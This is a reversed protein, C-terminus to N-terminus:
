RRLQALTQFLEREQETLDQPLVIQVRAYLDGHRRPTRLGPMGKGELRFSRGAQTEAPIKLRVAKTLTPVQVDGGLIATYLDVQVKCFLDDGKREFIDHPLIQVRLYIDGDPGGNRGRGGKGAIRVRSGTRVGRPIKVELRQGDVELVRRTGGYAEELTLDIPQEYDRGRQSRAQAEQWRM